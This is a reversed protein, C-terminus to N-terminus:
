ELLKKMEEFEDDYFFQQVRESLKKLDVNKNVFDGEKGM